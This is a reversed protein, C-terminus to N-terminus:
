QGLVPGGSASSSHNSFLELNSHLFVSLLLIPANFITFRTQHQHYQTASSVIWNIYSDGVMTSQHKSHLQSVLFFFLLRRRRWRWNWRCRRCLQSGPHLATLFYVFSAQVSRVSSCGNYSLQFNMEKILSLKEISNM